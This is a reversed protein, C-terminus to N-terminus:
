GPTGNVAVHVRTFSFRMSASKETGVQEDDGDNEDHEEEAARGDGLEGAVEAGGLVLELLSELLPLGLAGGLVAGPCKPPPRCGRAEPGPSTVPSRFWATVGSAADVSRGGADGFPAIGIQGLPAMAM